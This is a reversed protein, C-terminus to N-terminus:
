PVTASWASTNGSEFGDQFVVFLPAPCPLAASRTVTINTGTTEAGGLVLLASPSCGNQIALDVLDVLTAAGVM